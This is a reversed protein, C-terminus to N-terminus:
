ATAFSIQLEDVVTPLGPPTQPIDAGNEVMNLCYCRIAEQVRNRAETMSPGSAQCAPLTPVWARYSGDLCKEYLVKFHYKQSVTEEKTHTFIFFGEM